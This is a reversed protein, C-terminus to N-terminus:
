PKERAAAILEDEEWRIGLVSQIYALTIIESMSSCDYVGKSRFWAVLESPRGFADIRCLGGLWTTQVWDDVKLMYGCGRDRSREPLSSCFRPVCEDFVEWLMSSATVRCSSRSDVSVSITKISAKLVEVAADLDHPPLRLYSEPILLPDPYAASQDGGTIATRQLYIAAVEVGPVTACGGVCALLLLVFNRAIM